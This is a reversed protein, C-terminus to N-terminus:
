CSICQERAKNKGQIFAFRGLFFASTMLIPDLGFIFYGFVLLTIRLFATVIVALNHYKFNKQTDALVWELEGKRDKNIFQVTKYYYGCIHSLFM